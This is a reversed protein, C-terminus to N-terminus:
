VDTQTRLLLCRTRVKKPLRGRGGVAAREKARREKKGPVLTTRIEEEVRDNGVVEVARRKGKVDGESGSSSGNPEGQHDLRHIGRRM